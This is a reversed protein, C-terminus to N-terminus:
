QRVFPENAASAGTMQLRVEGNRTFYQFYRECKLDGTVSTLQVVAGHGADDMKGHRWTGTFKVVTPSSPGNCTAPLM